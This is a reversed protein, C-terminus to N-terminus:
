NLPKHAARRALLDKQLSVVMQFIMEYEDEPLLGPMKLQARM